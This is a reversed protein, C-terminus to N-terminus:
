VTLTLRPGGYMLTFEHPTGGTTNSLYFSTIPADFEAQMRYPTSNSQGGQLFIARYSGINAPVIATGPLIEFSMMIYPTNTPDATVCAIRRTAFPLKILFNFLPTAPDFNQFAMCSPPNPLVQGPGLAVSGANGGSVTRGERIFRDIVDSWVQQRQRRIAAYLKSPILKM